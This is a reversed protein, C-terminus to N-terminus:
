LLGMRLYTAFLEPKPDRETQKKWVVMRGLDLRNPNSAPVVSDLYIGSKNNNDQHRFVGVFDRYCAPTLLAIAGEGKPKLHKGTLHFNDQGIKVELCCYPIRGIGCFEKKMQPNPEEMPSVPKIIGSELYDENVRRCELYDVIFGLSKLALGLAPTCQHCHGSFNSYKKDWFGYENLIAEYGGNWLERAVNFITQHPNDSELSFFRKRVKELNLKPFIEELNVYIRRYNFDRLEKDLNVM